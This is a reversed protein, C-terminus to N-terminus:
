VLLLSPGDTRIHRTRTDARQPLAHAVGRRAVSRQVAAPMRFTVPGHHKAPLHLVEVSSLRKALYHVCGQVADLLTTEFPWGSMNSGIHFSLEEVAVFSELM